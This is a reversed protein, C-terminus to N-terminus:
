AAPFAGHGPNGDALPELPATQDVLAFDIQDGAFGVQAISLYDAMASVGIADPLGDQNADATHIALQTPDYVLSFAAGAAANNGNAALDITVLM